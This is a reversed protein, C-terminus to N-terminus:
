GARSHPVADVVNPADWEAQTATMRAAVRDNLVPLEDGRAIQEVQDPGILLMPIHFAERFYARVVTDIRAAGAGREAIARVIASVSAGARFLARLQDVFALDVQM